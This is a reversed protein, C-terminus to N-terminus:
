PEKVTLRQNGAVNTLKQRAGSPWEIEIASAVADKGLGFTLALDSPSCYSSGSHVTQWQKGGASTVRVVAGIGDRNSKTGALKLQLWHNRNGGDNRYLIRRVTTRAGDSRGPRWRSRFRWLGRRAGGDSAHIGNVQVRVKWAGNNRFLLPLEAYQIKPQM